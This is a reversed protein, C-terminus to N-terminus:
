TEVSADDSIPFTPESTSMVSFGSSGLDIMALGIKPKPLDIDFSLDSKGSQRLMKAAGIFLRKVEEFESQAFLGKESFELSSQDLATISPM